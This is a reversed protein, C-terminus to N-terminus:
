PANRRLYDGAAMLENKGQSPPTFPDPVIATPMPVRCLRGFDAPHDNQGRRGPKDGGAGGECVPSLKRPSALLAQGSRAAVSFSIM